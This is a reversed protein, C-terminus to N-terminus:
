VIQALTYHLVYIVTYIHSSRIATINHAESEITQRRLRCGHFFQRLDMNYLQVYTAHLIVTHRSGHVLSDADICVCMRLRYICPRRALYIYNNNNSHHNRQHAIWEITKILLKTAM